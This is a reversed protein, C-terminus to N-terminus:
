KKSDFPALRRKDYYFFQFDDNVMVGLIIDLPEKFYPSGSEADNSFVPNDLVKVVIAPEDYGPYKKNKLGKKWTVLQGEKFINEIKLLELREKLASAIQKTDYSNQEKPFSLDSSLLSEMKKVLRNEDM